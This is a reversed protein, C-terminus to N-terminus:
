ILILSLDHAGKLQGALNNQRAAAAAMAKEAKNLAVGAKPVWVNPNKPHKPTHSELAKNYAKLVM